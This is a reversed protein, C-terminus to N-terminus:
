RELVLQKRPGDFTVLFKSLLGNGLLGAEGPFLREAHVGVRVGPIRLGGLQVDATLNRPMGTALAVSTGALGRAKEETVVWRLASDCGTDVRMWEPKNGAVGIRACLADGRKVLAMTEGGAGSFEGRELLRVKQRAYDIQVIRERFFDAGILGDIRRGVAGSVGKLDLALMKPALRVGAVEGAFDVRYGVTRTGVGLVPRGAGLKVGLRRAAGQDLVSVGAGSDLLFNLPAAQGDM